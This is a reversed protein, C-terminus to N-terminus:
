VVRAIQDRAFDKVIISYSSGAFSAEMLLNLGSTIDSLIEHNSQLMKKVHTIQERGAVECQDLQIAVWTDNEYKKFM